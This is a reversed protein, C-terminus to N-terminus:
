MINGAGPTYSSGVVTNAVITDCQITGFSSTAANVEVRGSANISITTGSIEVTDESVQIVTELATLRKELKHIRRELEKERELARALAAENQLPM